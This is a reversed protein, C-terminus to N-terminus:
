QISRPKAQLIASPLIVAGQRLIEWRDIQWRVVTSPIGSSSLPEPPLALSQLASDSLQLVSPFAQAIAMMELLADQGSRNASTTALPGTQRLIQRALAHNPIRVGVTGPNRPNMATPVRDSAPLVLTLAGPFYQQMLSQWIQREAESGRLYDWIAEIEGAMLILPKDLRRQKLTYIQDAIAPIAALAPVTDTPFSAIAAGQTVQTVLQTFTVYSM